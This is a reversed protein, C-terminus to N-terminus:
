AAPLKELAALVEQLQDQQEALESQAKAIIAPPAKDAFGPAALRASVKGISKELEDRQKGLRKREKAADVLEAM